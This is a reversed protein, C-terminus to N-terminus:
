LKNFLSLCIFVKFCLCLASLIQICVVLYGAYLMFILGILFEVDGDEFALWPAEFM